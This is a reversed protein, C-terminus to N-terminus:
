RGELNYTKKFIRDLNIEEKALIFERFDNTDKFYQLINKDTLNDESIGLLENASSYEYEFFNKCLHARVPNLLIYKTLVPFDNEDYIIKSKTRGEFLIGSRNYKKNISKTYSNTLAGIFKGPSKNKSTQRAFIHFHNPMLCYSLIQVEYKLKYVALKRKFHLYDAPEQYIPQKNAGRNYLHHYTDEQFYRPQNM